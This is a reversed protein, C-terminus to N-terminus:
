IVVSAGTLHLNAMCAGTFHLNAMSARSSHVRVRDEGDRMRGEGLIVAFVQWKGISIYM